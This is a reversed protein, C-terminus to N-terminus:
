ESGVRPRPGTRAMIDSVTDAFFKVSTTKGFLSGIAKFSRGILPPLIFTLPDSLVDVAFAPLDAAQFGEEQAGSFLARGLTETTARGQMLAGMPDGGMLLESIFQQPRQLLGIKRRPQAMQFSPAPRQPQQQQEMAKLYDEPVSFDQAPNPGVNPFGYQSPDEVGGSAPDAELAKLVQLYLADAM